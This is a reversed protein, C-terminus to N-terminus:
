LYLVHVFSICDRNQKIRRRGTPPQYLGTESFLQM